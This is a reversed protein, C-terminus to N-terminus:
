GQGSFSGIIIAVIMISQVSITQMAPAFWVILLPFTLYYHTLRRAHYSLRTPSLLLIPPGSPQAAPPSLESASCPRAALWGSM